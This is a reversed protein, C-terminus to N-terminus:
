RHLSWSPPHASHQPAQLLPSELPPETTFVDLGAGAIQGTELATLLADEDIIGGRSANVIRLSPKALAFQETGVMGLTEATKPIHVTIFDSRAM